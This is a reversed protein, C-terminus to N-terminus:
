DKDKDRDGGGHDEPLPPVVPNTPNTVDEAKILFNENEISEATCSSMITAAVFCCLLLLVNKM